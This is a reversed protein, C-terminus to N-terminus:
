TFLFVALGYSETLNKIKLLQSRKMYMNCYITVAASTNVNCCSDHKWNGFHHDSIKFWTSLLKYIYIYIFFVGIHNVFGFVHFKFYNVKNVHKHKSPASLSVPFEM